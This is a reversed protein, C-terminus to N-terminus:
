GACPLYPISTAQGSPRNMAEQLKKLDILNYFGYLNLASVPKSSSGSGSQPLDFTDEELRKYYLVFGGQEWHLLKIADKRTGVFIFVDDSMPDQGMVNSVLGCLSDFSKRM